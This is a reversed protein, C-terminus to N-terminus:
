MTKEEPGRKTMTEQMAELMEKQLEKERKTGGNLFFAELRPRIVLYRNGEYVAFSGLHDECMRRLKKEGVNFYQSAEKITLIFKDKIELKENM